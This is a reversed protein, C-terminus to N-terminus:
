YKSGGQITSVYPSNVLGQISLDQGLMGTLLHLRGLLHLNMAAVRDDNSRYGCNICRFEHLKKNRSRKDVVMCKPCM